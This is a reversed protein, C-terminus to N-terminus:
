AREWNGKVAVQLGEEAEPNELPRSAANAFAEPVVGRVQVPSGLAELFVGTEDVVARPERCVREYDIRLLRRPGLAAAADEIDCHVFHVQAAARTSPDAGAFQQWARPKVSWWRDREFGGGAQEARVISRANALPGRCVQVFGCGPFIAALLPIRVSHIVNKNVFPGGMIQSLASVTGRMEDLPLGAAFSADLSESGPLWREWIWGGENPAAWGAVHGYRSEFEGRWNRVLPWGIRTASVPTEYLRHALNSLYAVRFRRVLLQYLLTTGSRPPGVLFCPPPAATAAGRAVLRSELPRLSTM